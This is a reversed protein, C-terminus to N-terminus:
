RKWEIHLPQQTWPLVVPSLTFPLDNLLLDYPQPDVVLEYREASLHLQGKRWLWTDCFGRVDHSQFPTSHSILAAVMRHCWDKEQDTPTYSAPVPTTPSLGCLLKTLVLTEEAHETQENFLYQLLLVAQAALADSKFAKDPGLYDLQTFFHELYPHLLVMGGNDVSFVESPPTEYTYELRTPAPRQTAALDLLADPSTPEAASEKKPLDIGELTQLLRQRLEEASLTPRQLVVLLLAQTTQTLWHTTKHYGLQTLTKEVGLLWRAAEEALGGQRRMLHLQQGRSLLSLSPAPDDRKELTQWAGEPHYDLVYRTLESLDQFGHETLDVADSHELQGRWLTLASPAKTAAEAPPAQTKWWDVGSSATLVKGMEANPWGLQEILVQRLLTYSPDKEGCLRWLRLAVRRIYSEAPVRQGIKVAWQHLRRKLQRHWVEAASESTRLLRAWTQVWQAQTLQEALTHWVPAEADLGLLVARLTTPYQYLAVSFWSLQQDQAAYTKWSAEFDAATSGYTIPSVPTPGNKPSQQLAANWDSAAAWAESLQAQLAQVGVFGQRFRSEWHRQVRSPNVKFWVSLQLIWLSLPLAQWLRSRQPVSLSYLLERVTPAHQLLAQEWRLRLAPSMSSTNALLMRLGRELDAKESVEEPGYIAENSVLAKEQGSMAIREQLASVTKVLRALGTHQSGKLLFAGLRKLLQAYNLQNRQAVQRLTAEAFQLENFSSGRSDLLVLVMFQWLDQRFERHQRPVWAQEQHSRTLSKHMERIADAETPALARVLPFGIPKEPHHTLTHVVPSPFPLSALAEVMDARDAQLKQTVEAIWARGPTNAQLLSVLSRPATEAEIGHNPEPGVEEELEKLAALLPKLAVTVQTPLTRHLLQILRSFPLQYRQSLQRLTSKLMSRTNFASGSEVLLYNLMFLWLAKELTGQPQAVWRHQANLAVWRAHYDLMLDAHDPALVQLTPKALGGAMRTAMRERVALVQGAQRFMQALGSESERALTQWLGQVTHQAHWPLTGRELYHRLQDLHSAEPSTLKKSAQPMQKLYALEQQLQLVVQRVWSQDLSEWPLPGVDLILRDLRVVQDPPILRDLAQEIAELLQKLCVEQMRENLTDALELRGITFELQQRHIIHNSPTSM